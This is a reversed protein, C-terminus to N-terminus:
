IGVVVLWDREVTELNSFEINGNFYSKIVKNRLSRSSKRREAKKEWGDM